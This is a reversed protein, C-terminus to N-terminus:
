CFLVPKQQMAFNINNCHPLHVIKRNNALIANELTSHAANAESKTLASVDSFTM